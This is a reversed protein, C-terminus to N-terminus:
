MIFLFRGTLRELPYEKKEGGSKELDEACPCVGMDWDMGLPLVRLKM